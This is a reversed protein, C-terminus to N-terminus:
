RAELSGAQLCGLRKQVELQHLLHFANPKRRTAASSLTIGQSAALFVVFELLAGRNSEVLRHPEQVLCTAWM